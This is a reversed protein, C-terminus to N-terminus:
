KFTYSVFWFTMPKIGSTTMPIRWQCLGEWQVTARPDIWFYTGLINGSPNLCSICLAWFRVVKKNQTDKFRPGEVEKLARPAQRPRCLSQENKKLCIRITGSMCGGRNYFDYTLKMGNLCDKHKLSSFINKPWLWTNWLSFTKLDMHIYLICM